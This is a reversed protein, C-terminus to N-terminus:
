AELTSAALTLTSVAGTFSCEQLRKLRIEFRHRELDDLISRWPPLRRIPMYRRGEVTVLDVCPFADDM